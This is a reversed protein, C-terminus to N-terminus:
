YCFLNRYSSSNPVDKDGFLEKVFTKSQEDNKEYALLLYFIAMQKTCSDLVRNGKNLYLIYFLDFYAAGYHYKTAMEYSTVYLEEPKDIHFFYYGSLQYYASTDGYNLAKTKLHYMKKKNESIEKNYAYFTELSDIIRSDLISKSSDLHDDKKIEKCSYILLLLILLTRM